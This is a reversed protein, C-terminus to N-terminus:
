KISAHFRVDYTFVIDDFNEGPSERYVRGAVAQADFIEPTFADETSGGSYPNRFANHRITVSIPQKKASIIVEVTHLKGARVLEGRVFDDALAKADLPVDSLIVVTDKTKPDFFGEQSKAYAYALKVTKGAVTLNGDAKGNDMVAAFLALSIATAAIMVILTAKVKM